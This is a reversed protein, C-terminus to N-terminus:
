LNLKGQFKQDGLSLKSRFLNINFIQGWADVLNNTYLLDFKIKFNNIFISKNPFM